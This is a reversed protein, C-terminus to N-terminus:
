GGRAFPTFPQDATGEKPDEDMLWVVAWKVGKNKPNVVYDQKLIPGNKLCVAQDKDVNAPEPTPM